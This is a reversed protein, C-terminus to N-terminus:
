LCGPMSLVNMANTAELIQYGLDQNHLDTQHQDQDAQQAAWHVMHLHPSVGVAAGAEEVVQVGDGGEDHLDLAQQQTGFNKFINKILIDKKDAFFSFNVKKFHFNNFIEAELWRVFKIKVYKSVMKLVSNLWPM